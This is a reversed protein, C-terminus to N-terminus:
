ATWVAGVCGFWDNVVQIMEPSFTQHYISVLARRSEGGRAQVNWWCKGHTAVYRVIDLYGTGYDRGGWRMRVWPYAMSADYILEPDTVKAPATKMLGYVELAMQFPLGVEMQAKLSEGVREVNM